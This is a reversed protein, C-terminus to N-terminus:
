CGPQGHNGCCSRLRILKLLNNRLYLGAKQYFPMPQRLNHLFEKWNPKEKHCM